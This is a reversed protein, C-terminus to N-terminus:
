CSAGTLRDRGNSRNTICRDFFIGPTVGDRQVGRGEMRIKSAKMQSGNYILSVRYEVVQGKLVAKEVVDEWHGM